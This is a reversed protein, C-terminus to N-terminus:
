KELLKELIFIILKVIKRNKAFFCSYFSFAGKLKLINLFSIKTFYKKTTAYAHFHFNMADCM